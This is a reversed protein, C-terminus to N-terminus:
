EKIQFIKGLNLQEFIELLWSTLTQTTGGTQSCAKEISSTLMQSCAKEISSTLMQSCAKEISSTLMQSCAKEISSTLM